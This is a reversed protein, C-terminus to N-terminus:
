KIDEKKPLTRYPNAIKNAVRRKGWKKEKKRLRCWVLVFVCMSVGCPFLNHVSFIPVCVFCVCVYHITQLAEENGPRKTKSM